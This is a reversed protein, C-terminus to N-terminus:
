NTLEIIKGAEACSLGMQIVTNRHLNLSPQMEKYRETKGLNVNEEVPWSRKPIAVEPLSSKIILETSLVLVLFM